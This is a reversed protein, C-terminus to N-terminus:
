ERVSTMGVVGHARRLWTEPCCTCLTHMSRCQLQSPVEDDVETSQQSLSSAPDTSVATFDDARAESKFGWVLLTTVLFIWGWMATFGGLSIMGQEEVSYGWPKRIYRSFCLLPSDVSQAFLAGM